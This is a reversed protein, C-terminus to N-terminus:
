APPRPNSDRGSRWKKKVGGVGLLGLVFLSLTGPEPVPMQAASVTLSGFQFNTSISSSQLCEGDVCTDVSQTFLGFLTGIPINLVDLPEFGNSLDILGLPNNDVDSWGLTLSRTDFVGTLLPDFIRPFNTSGDFVVVQDPTLSSCGEGCPQPGSSDVVQLGGFGDDYAGVDHAIGGINLVSSILALNNPEFFQLYTGDTAVFEDRVLGDTEIMIAGTVAEGNHSLDFTAQGFENFIITERVTATFAFTLPIAQASSAALALLATVTTHAFFRRAKGM